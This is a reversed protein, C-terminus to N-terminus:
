FLEGNIWFDVYNPRSRWFVQLLHHVLQSNEVGTIPWTLLVFCNHIITYIYCFEMFRLWLFYNLLWLRSRWLSWRGWINCVSWNETWLVVSMMKDSDSCFLGFVTLFTPFLQDGLNLWRQKRLEKNIGDFSEVIDLDFMVFVLLVFEFPNKKLCLM